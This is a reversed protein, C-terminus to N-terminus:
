SRPCYRVAIMVWVACVDEPYSYVKVRLAFKVDDGESQLIDAGTNNSELAVMIKAADRHSFCTPFGKFCHKEPVANKVSSQFDDNGFSYGTIREMEYAALAPQLLYALDDDFLASKGFATSLAIHFFFFCIATLTQRFSSRLHHDTQAWLSFPM